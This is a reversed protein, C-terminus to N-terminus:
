NAQNWWIRVETRATSKLSYLIYFFLFLVIGRTCVVFHVVWMLLIVKRNKKKKKNSSNLNGVRGMRKHKWTEQKLWWKGAHNYVIGLVDHMFSGKIIRIMKIIFHVSEWIVQFHHEWVQHKWIYWCFSNENLQFWSDSYLLRGNLGSKSLDRVWM